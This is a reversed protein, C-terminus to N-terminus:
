PYLLGKGVTILRKKNLGVPNIHEVYDPVVVSMNGINAIAKHSIAENRIGSKMHMMPIIKYMKAHAAVVDAVKSESIVAQDLLVRVYGGRFDEQERQMKEFKKKSDIEYMFFRSNRLWIRTTVNEKTDYIMLGRKDGVDLMNHQLSSGIIETGGLRQPHHHHGALIKDAGIKRLRALPYGGLKIENPGNKAEDLGIHTMIIHTWGSAWGDIVKAIKQIEKAMQDKDKIYPLCHFACTGYTVVDYKGIVVETNPLRNLAYVTSVPIGDRTIAAMDHNGAITIMCKSTNALNELRKYTEQFVVTDMAM